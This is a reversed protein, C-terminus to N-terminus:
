ALKRWEEPEFLEGDNAVREPLDLARRAERLRQFEEYEGSTM